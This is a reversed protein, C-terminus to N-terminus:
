RSAIFMRWRQVLVRYYYKIHNRLFYIAVASFILYTVSLLYLIGPNITRAISGSSEANSAVGATCVSCQAASILPLLLVIASFFIKKLNKM